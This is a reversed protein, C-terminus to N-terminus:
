SSRTARWGCGGAVQRSPPRMSLFRREPLLLSLLAASTKASGVAQREGREDASERRLQTAERVIHDFLDREVVHLMVVTDSPLQEKLVQLM